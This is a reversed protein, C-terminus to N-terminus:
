QNVVVDIVRASQELKQLHYFFQSLIAIIPLCANKM